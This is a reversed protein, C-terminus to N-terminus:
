EDYREVAMLHYDRIIDALWQPELVKIAGGRSLLPTHFDRTPRLTLEFDSYEETNAIEKQSPHLPLDRMYYAEQGYARIVVRQVPVNADNVIGYCDSFWRAADFDRDYDFKEETLELGKIRDFALLFFDGKKLARVLGYWRRNFLKVCYPEVKMSTEYDSAYRRYRVIIRLSRKMADIYRHLSEGDSPITELLIRDHVSKSESLINNVSLTSLMWNQISDEELVEENGIYYKFGDKKDCEIYIGFMDQIADKHRNFTSRALSIGESMETEVWKRNIEELTIRGAKHITNVLWIYEQFLTYTKM